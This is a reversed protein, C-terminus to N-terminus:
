YTRVNWRGKGLPLLGNSDGIRVAEIKRIDIDLWAHIYRNTLYNVESVTTCEAYLVCSNARTQLLNVRATIHKGPASRDARDMLPFWSNQWLATAKFDGGNGVGSWFGLTRAYTTVVDSDVYGNGIWFAIGLRQSINTSLIAIDIDMATTAPADTHFEASVKGEPITFAEGRDYEAGGGNWKDAKEKRLWRGNKGYFIFDDERHQALKAATTPFAM